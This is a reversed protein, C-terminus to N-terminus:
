QPSPQEAKNSHLIGSVLTFQTTSAFSPFRDRNPNRLSDTHLIGRDIRPELRHHNAVCAKHPLIRGSGDQKALLHLFKPLEVDVDTLVAGGFGDVCVWIM